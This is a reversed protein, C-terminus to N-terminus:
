IILLAEVLLEEEFMISYVIIDARGRLLIPRFPKTGPVAAPPLM